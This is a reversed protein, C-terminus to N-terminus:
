SVNSYFHIMSIWSKPPAFKAYWRKNSLIEGSCSIHLTLQCGKWLVMFMSDLPAVGHALWSSLKGTHDRTGELYSNVFCHGQESSGQGNECVISAGLIVEVFKEIQDIQTLSLIRTELHRDSSLLIILNLKPWKIANINYLLFYSLRARTIDNEAVLM